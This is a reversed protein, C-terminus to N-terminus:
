EKFADDLRRTAEGIITIRRLIADQRMVSQEFATRDIGEVFEQILRAANLMDLLLVVDRLM